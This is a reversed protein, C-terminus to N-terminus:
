NEFNKWSKWKKLNSSNKWNKSNKCIKWIWNEIKSTKLELLSIQIKDLGLGSELRTGSWFRSMLFDLIQVSDPSTGITSMEPLFTHIVIIVWKFNKYQIKLSFENESFLPVKRCVTSYFKRIIRACFKKTLNSKLSFVATRKWM